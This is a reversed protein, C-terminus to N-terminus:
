RVKERLKRLKTSVYSLFKHAYGITILLSVIIVLLPENFLKEIFNKIDKM